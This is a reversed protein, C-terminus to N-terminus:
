GLVVALFWMFGFFISLGIFDIIRDFVWRPDIEFGYKKYIM